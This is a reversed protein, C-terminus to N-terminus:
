VLLLGITLIHHTRFYFFQLLKKFVKQFLSDLKQILYAIQDNFFSKCEPKEQSFETTTKM